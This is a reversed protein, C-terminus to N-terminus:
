LSHTDAYPGRSLGCQRNLETFSHGLESRTVHLALTTWEIRVNPSNIRQHTNPLLPYLTPWMLSNRNIEIETRLFDSYITAWESYGEPGKCAFDLTNQSSELWIEKNQGHVPLQIFLECATNIRRDILLRSSYWSYNACPKFESQLFAMPAINPIQTRTATVPPHQRLRLLCPQRPYLLNRDSIQKWSLVLSKSLKGHYTGTCLEPIRQLM